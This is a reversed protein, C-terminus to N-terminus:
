CTYLGEEQARHPLDRFSISNGYKHKRHIRAALPLSDDRKGEQARGSFSIRRM